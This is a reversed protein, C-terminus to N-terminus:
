YNQLYVKLIRKNIIINELQNHNTQLFAVSKYIDIKCRAYKNFALIRNPILNISYARRTSFSLFKLDYCKKTNM